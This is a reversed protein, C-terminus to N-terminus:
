GQHNLLLHGARSAVNIQRMIQSAILARKDETQLMLIQQGHELSNQYLYDDEEAIAVGILLGLLTGFSAGLIVGSLAVIAWINQSFTAPMIASNLALQMMLGATVGLLSGWIAGGLAGSAVTEGVSRGRGHYVRTVQTMSKTEIADKSYGASSLARVAAETDQISDFLRVVLRQGSQGSLSTVQLAAAHLQVYQGEVLIRTKKPLELEMCNEYAKLAATEGRVVEKLVTKEVNEQGITLAATIDIRGRHVMGRISRRTGLKGGLRAIEQGLEDAFEARQRAYTKLLLKLGRNRINEASVGFGLEGARCLRYLRNLTKVVAINSTNM